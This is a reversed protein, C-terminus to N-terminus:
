WDTIHFSKNQFWSNIVFSVFWFSDVIDEHPEGAGDYSRTDFVFAGIMKGSWCNSNCELHWELAINLWTNDYISTIYRRSPEAKPPLSRTKSFAAKKRNVTEGSVVIM